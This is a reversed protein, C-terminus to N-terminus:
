TEECNVDRFQQETKLVLLLQPHDTYLRQVGMSLLREMTARDNVTWAGVEIGAAKIKQVKEPTVGEHHVVLAEFGHKKATAIDDAINTEKGRDWFVPIDPALRKVDSMYDLNGDNFGVWREAKLSKVLAVADAVCDMKPQISVRTRNQKMVLRLVDQLLPIRQPPCEFITKGTRKRFDTAVDVKALEEYTSDAVVLDGDGIRRTTRDHIVVLKGDKTRLIDLEIWDAGVDIGSQFAPITNEPYESSNGRHATVGNALFSDAHGLIKPTMKKFLELWSLTFAEPITKPPRYEDPTRGWYFGIWGTAYQRSQDIFQELEDAGCKLTFTEEIVVPKGVAAFAKVTEIAEAVKGTEPYMHMAIFDLDDAIQEPVFGSTLGPQDLSWPVLGVTILHRKDHKRIASVLTRIWQRAVDPRNRNRRDLAIFQVFHKGGFGPGLWDDRKKDGGPVVPENMLDYCFIAPSESCKAAVAEWFVAQATWRDQESLKDYWEPVDQKHYCGLGTLDLYLGTREALKVLRALQDLSHQRPKTPSEMFTGFQLHIRVVNAGLEKMEQFASEVTPWKDDWYDEILQGDGEHDYNFGWPVFQKGSEALVFGKGDNSVKVWELDAASCPAVALLVIIQFALFFRM